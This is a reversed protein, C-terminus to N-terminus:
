EKPQTGDNAQNLSRLAAESLRFKQSLSQFSEGVVTHYLSFHIGSSHPVFVVDGSTESDLTAPSSPPLSVFSLAESKMAHFLLGLMGVWLVMAAAAVCLYVRRVFPDM